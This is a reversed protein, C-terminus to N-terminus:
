NKRRKVIIKTRRRELTSSPSRGFFLYVFLCTHKGDSENTHSGSSHPSSLIGALPASESFALAKMGTHVAAHRRSPEVERNKTKVYTRGHAIYIFLQLCASITQDVSFGDMWRNMWVGM